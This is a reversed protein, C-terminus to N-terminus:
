QKRCFCAEFGAVSVVEDRIWAVATELSAIREREDAPTSIDDVSDHGSDEDLELSSSEESGTPPRHKEGSFDPQSMTLDSEPAQM